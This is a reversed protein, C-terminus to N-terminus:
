GGIAVLDNCSTCKVRKDEPAHSVLWENGCPCRVTTSVLAARGATEREANIRKAESLFDPAGRTATPTPASGATTADDKATGRMLALWGADGGGPGAFAILVADVHDPSDPPDVVRLRGQPDIKYRMGLLQAKLIPSKPLRIRDSELLGRFMWAGEAKRNLFRTGDSAKDSARYEETEPFETAISDALGKGIGVVDVRLCSAGHKRVLALAMGKSLQTDREHWGNTSHVQYREQEDPGSVLALVTEDGAVSGAVDLGAVPPLDVEFTADMAREVWAFPFLAGEADSIYRALARAQYEPSNEGWEALRKAKWEVKGPLGEAILDDITVVARIVDPGGKVDRDFFPGSPISPTSIWVDLTEPADLLGETSEFVGPDVAKAEDVIRCAAVPSHRGELNAPADSAMGVFDWGPGLELSAELLKGLRVKSLASASYLRDIETWLLGKVAAWTPATSIGRSHERTTTWWLGLIAALATKGAGHCSRVLVEIHLDGAALRAAIERCVNRQWRRLKLSLVVEAFLEPDDQCQVLVAAIEAATSSV